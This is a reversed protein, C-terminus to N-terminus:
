GVGEVGFGPRTRERRATTPSVRIIPSGSLDRPLAKNEDPDFLGGNVCGVKLVGWEDTEAPRSECQPSWGQEIKVLHHGLRSMAWHAPIKGIWEVGSDKLHVNPDLGKTVAQTILAQRKEQLLEILREKKAILDDIAAVGRDLFSSILVQTPAPPVPILTSGLEPRTVHVLGIIGHVRSEIEHTVAKLVWYFWGKHGRFGTMRFIHQNLYYHGDHQWLYPGFSTGKNGSWGFLLDGRRVHFKAPVARRTFNFETSGNLNEIRVIPVGSDQWEDPKFAAGNIFGTFHKLPTLEWGVQVDGIWSKASDFLSDSM